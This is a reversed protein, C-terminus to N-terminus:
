HQDQKTSSISYYLFFHGCYHVLLLYVKGDLCSEFRPLILVDSYVHLIFYGLQVGKTNM